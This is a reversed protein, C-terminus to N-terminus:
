SIKFMNSHNLVFNKIKEKQPGYGLHLAFARLAIVQVLGLTVFFKNLEVEDRSFGVPSVAFGGMAEWVKRKILMMSISVPIPALIFSPEVKSFKNAIEDVPLANKTLYLAADKNYWFPTDFRSIKPKGFKTEFEKELNLIKLFYYSTFNNINFIPFVAGVNYIGQKEVNKLTRKLEEFLNQTVIIDEGM